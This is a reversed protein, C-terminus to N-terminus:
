LPAHRRAEDQAARRGSPWGSISRRFSTPSAPASRSSTRRGSASSSRARRDGVLHAYSASVTTSWQESWDYSLSTAVGVSTVGGSPRYPDLNIAAEFPSLRFLDFEQDGLRPATRGLLHLPRLPVGRRGRCRWSATTVTSAARASRHAAEADRPALIGPLRRARGGLRVDDFGFLRRDDGLYRGGRFRGAIGFRVAATDYVPLSFGDDPRSFRKPEGVRRLIFSPFAIFGYDDAGPYRRVSRRTATVTVVWGAAPALAPRPRALHRIPRSLRRRSGPLPSPAWAFACARCDHDDAPRTRTTLVNGRVSAIGVAQRLTLRLRAARRKRLHTNSARCGPSLRGVTGSHVPERAPTM